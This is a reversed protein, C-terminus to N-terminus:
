MYMYMCHEHFPQVYGQVIFMCTYVNYWMLKTEVWSAQMTGAGVLSVLMTGVCVLCLQCAVCRVQLGCGSILSASTGCMEGAPWM